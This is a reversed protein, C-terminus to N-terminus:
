GRGIKFGLAGGAVATIAAIGGALVTGDIGKALAISVPIAICVMAIIAVLAGYRTIKM